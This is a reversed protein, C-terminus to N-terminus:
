IAQTFPVVGISGVDPKVVYADPFVVGSSGGSTLFNKLILAELKPVRRAIVDDSGVTRRVCPAKCHMPDIGVIKRFDGAGHVLKQDVLMALGIAKQQGIAALDMHRRM